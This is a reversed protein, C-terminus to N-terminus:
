MWCKRRYPETSAFVDYTHGAYLFLKPILRKARAFQVCLQPSALQYEARYLPCGHLIRPSESTGYPLHIPQVGAGCNQEPYASTASEFKAASCYWARKCRVEACDASSSMALPPPLVLFRYTLVQSYHSM